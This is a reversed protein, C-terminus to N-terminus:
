IFTWSWPSCSGDGLMGSDMFDTPYLRLLVMLVICYPLFIPGLLLDIAIMGLARVSIGMLTTFSLTAPPPVSYFVTVTRQGRPCAAVWNLVDTSLPVGLLEESETGVLVCYAPQFADM